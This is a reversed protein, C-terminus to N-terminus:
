LDREDRIGLFIPSRPADVTGHEQFKYKALKGLLHKRNGALWWTERQADNLGSGCRFTLLGSDACEACGHGECHPCSRDEGIARLVFAGLVNMGVKGGKASSRKTRGVEDKYAENENHMREEFGVIIAEADTFRKLKLLGGERVTSRGQKYMGMMDRIMVGEYGEALCKAEYSALAEANDVAHHNVLKIRSYKGTKTMAEIRKMASAIRSTFPLALNTFDDFVHWEVGDPDNSRGMVRSTVENFPLGPVVLEGDFGEYIPASFYDNLIKNPQPKMSRTKAEGNVVMCRIGDIKPSVFVPYKISLIDGDIDAALMPKKFM